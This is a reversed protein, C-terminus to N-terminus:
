PATVAWSGNGGPGELFLGVGTTLSIPWFFHAGTTVELEEELEQQYICLRGKAAEPEELTGPCDTTEGEEAKLLVINETLIPAALRIPYSLTVLEGGAEPNFFNWTGTVSQGSELTELLPGPPGPLGPAGPAGDKGNAGPAGAPGTPGPKGAFKQAIKKVERKQKASLGGSAAWAGGVVALVLALIGVVLGAKGISESARLRRMM